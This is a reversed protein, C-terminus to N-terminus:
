GCISEADGERGRDDPRFSQAWLSLGWGGSYLSVVFSPKCPAPPADKESLGCLRPFRRYQRGYHVGAACVGPPDAGRLGGQFKEVYILPDFCLRVLFGQDSAQRIQAIRTAASATHSEYKEIIMQPSLTWAFIVNPLPALDGLLGFAGSKTRIEITLNPRTLLLNMGGASM